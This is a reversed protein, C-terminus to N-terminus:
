VHADGCACSCAGQQYDGPNNINNLISLLGVNRGPNNRPAPAHRKDKVLQRKKMEQLDHEEAIPVVDIFPPKVCM